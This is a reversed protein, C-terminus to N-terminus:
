KTTFTKFSKPNKSIGNKYLKLRLEDIIEQREEESVYREKPIEKDFESTVIESNNQKSDKSARTIKILIKNGILDGTAESSKKAHDLHKQSYKGSM